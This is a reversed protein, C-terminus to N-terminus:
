GKVNHLARREGQYSEESQLRNQRILMPIRTKKQNTNAHYKKRWLNVKFRFTDKCKSHTEELCRITSNYKKIWEPFRQRKIPINPGNVNLIIISITPNIILIMVRISNNGKNKRGVKTKQEKVVNTSKILIKYPEIRKQEREKRLM